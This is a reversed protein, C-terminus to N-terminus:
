HLLERLKTLARHLRVSVTNESEDVMHAIESISVDDVYRWIILDRDRQPLRELIKMAQEIEAKQSTDSSQDMPDFGDEALADLSIAKKKRYWDVVMNHAIRYLFARFNEITEGESLYDWCKLFIDSVMDKAQERDGIKFYCYRFIADSFSDYAVLFEKEMKTKM